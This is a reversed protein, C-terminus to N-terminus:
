GTSGVLEREVVEADLGALDEAKLAEDVAKNCTSRMELLVAKRTVPHVPLHFTLCPNSKTSTVSLWHYGEDSDYSFVGDGEERLFTAIHNIEM